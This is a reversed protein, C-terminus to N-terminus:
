CFSKIIYHHFKAQISKSFTFQVHKDEVAKKLHTPYPTQILLEDMYIICICKDKWDM